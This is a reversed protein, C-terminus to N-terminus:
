KSVRFAALLLILTFPSQQLEKIRSIITYVQSFCGTLYGITLAIFSLFSVWFFLWFTFRLYMKCNYVLYIIALNLFLFLNGYILTSTWKPTFLFYKISDSYSSDYNATAEKSYRYILFPGNVLGPNFIYNWKFIGLVLYACCALFILIFRNTKSQLIQM